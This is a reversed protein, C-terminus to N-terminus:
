TGSHPFGIVFRARLDDDAELDMLLSAMGPNREVLEGILRAREESTASLYRLLDRRLEPTVNSASM